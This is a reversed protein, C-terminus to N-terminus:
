LDVRQKPFNSLQVLRKIRESAIQRQQSQVEPVHQWQLVAGEVRATPPLIHRPVDFREGDADLTAYDDSLRDVVIYNQPTTQPSAPPLNQGKPLVAHSADPARYHTNIALLVRPNSTPDLLANQIQPAALSHSPAPPNSQTTPDLLANQIQPAAISHSQAPVDLFADQTQACFFFSAIISFLHTFNMLNRRKNTFFVTFFYVFLWVVSASEHKSMGIM